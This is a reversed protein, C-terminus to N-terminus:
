WRLVTIDKVYGFHGDRSVLPLSYQRAVAAIWIDNEPIPSGARRLAARVTAYHEATELDIPLVEFQNLVGRIRSMNQGPRASNLAGFLLEGCVIAPVSARRVGAVLGLLAKDGDGLAVVANTDFLMEGGSM